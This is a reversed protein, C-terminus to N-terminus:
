FKMQSNYIVIVDNLIKTTVKELQGKWFAVNMNRDPKNKKDYAVLNQHSHPIFFLVTEFIKSLMQCYGYFVSNFNGDGMMLKKDYVNYLTGYTIWESHKSIPSDVFSSHLNIQLHDGYTKIEDLNLNSMATWVDFMDMGRQYGGYKDFYENIRSQEVAKLPPLLLKPADATTPLWTSNIASGDIDYYVEAEFTELFTPVSDSTPATTKSSAVEPSSLPASCSPLESTLQFSVKLRTRM